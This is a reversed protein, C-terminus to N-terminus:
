DGDIVPNALFNEIDPTFNDVLTTSSLTNNFLNYGRMYIGAFDFGTGGLWNIEQWVIYAYTGTVAISPNSAVEGYGDSILIENEWNSGDTSRSLWVKNSSVYVMAWYGNDGQVIKRQNNPTTAISSNSYLHAKYYATYTTNDTPTINRPNDKSFNDTWYSFRYDKGNIPKSNPASIQGSNQEVIYAVIGASVTEDFETQDNRSIAYNKRLNAVYRKGDDDAAVTFSYTQNPWRFEGNRTWDSQYTAGTHWIRQHGQNDDQPSNATLTLTQGVTKQFTYGTLPITQNVGDIVM